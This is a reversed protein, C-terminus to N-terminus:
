RGKVQKQCQWCCFCVLRPFETDLDVWATYSYYEIRKDCNECYPDRTKSWDEVRYVETWTEDPELKYLIANERGGFASLAHGRNDHIKFSAGRRDPIYTSYIQQKKKKQLKNPDFDMKM